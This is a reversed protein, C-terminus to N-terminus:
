PCGVRRKSGDGITLKGVRLTIRPTTSDNFGKDCWTVCPKKGSCYGAPTTLTETKRTLAADRKKTSDRRIPSHNKAARGSGKDRPKGTLLRRATTRVSEDRCTVPLPAGMTARLGVARAAPITSTRSATPSTSNCM